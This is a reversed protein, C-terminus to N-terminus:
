VLEAIAARYDQNSRAEGPGNVVKWRIVGGKDIIFTARMAFGREFFAGYEQAVAGHPWYDSLLNFDYGEQEAFVKLAASSDVSIGLTAIDDNNFAPIEDRIACLENTCIGSFAKPFFVLMVNKNGRYDSLKVAEGFQNELEFDPALEGIEASM